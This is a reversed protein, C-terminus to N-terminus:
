REKITLGHSAAFASLGSIAAAVEGSGNPSRQVTFATGRPYQALKDKLGVISTFRYQALEIYSEDPEDIRWLVIRRGDEEDHIMQRTQTRCNDTVCLSQLERLDDTRMLWGQGSGIAQRFADEVMAQRANPHEVAHRYALEAAKGEWRAHWRQFAARLRQLAAPSGHQGLTRVAGIVVDADDDDLNLIARTEVAPTM